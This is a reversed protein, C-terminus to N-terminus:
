FSALLTPREASQKDVWFVCLLLSDDDYGLCFASHFTSSRGQELGIMSALMSGVGDKCVTLAESSSAHVSIM